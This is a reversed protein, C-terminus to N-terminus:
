TTVTVYLFCATISVVVMGCTELVPQQPRKKNNNFYSFDGHFFDDEENNENAIFGGGPRVSFHRVYNFYKFAHM